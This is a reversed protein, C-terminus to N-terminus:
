ENKSIQKLREMINFVAGSNLAHLILGDCFREGRTIWMLLAMLCKDDANTIDLNDLDINKYGNEELIRRYANLGYEPNNEHFEYVVEILKMVAETYLVYPFQIPDDRTGKHERDIIWEGYEDAKLLEELELIRDFKSM